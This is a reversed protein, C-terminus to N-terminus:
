LVVFSAFSELRVNGKWVRHAFAIHAIVELVQGVVEAVLDVLAVDAEPVDVARGVNLLAVLRPESEM